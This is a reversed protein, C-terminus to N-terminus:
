GTHQKYISHQVDDEVTGAKLCRMDIRRYRSTWTRGSIDRRCKDRVYGRKRKSVSYSIQRVARNRQLAKYLRGTIWCATTREWVMRITQVQSVQKRRLIVDLILRDLRGVGSEVAM